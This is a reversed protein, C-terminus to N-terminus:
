QDRHRECYHVPRACCQGAALRQLARLDSAGLVQVRRVRGVAGVGGRREAAEVVTEEAAAGRRLTSDSEPVRCRYYCPALQLVESVVTHRWGHHHLINHEEQSEPRMSGRMSISYARVQSVERRVDSVSLRLLSRM